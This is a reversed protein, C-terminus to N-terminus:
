RQWEMADKGEIKLCPSVDSLEWEAEMTFLAEAGWVRGLRFMLPLQM